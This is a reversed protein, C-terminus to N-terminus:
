NRSDQPYPSSVGQENLWKLKFQVLNSGLKRYEKDTLEKKFQSFLNTEEM